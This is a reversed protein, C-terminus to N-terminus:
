SPQGKRASRHRIIKRGRNDGFYKSYTGIPWKM